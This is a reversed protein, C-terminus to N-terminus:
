QRIVEFGKTGLMKGGATRVRVLYNGATFNELNINKEFVGEVAASSRLLMKGTTSWVEFLLTESGDHAGLITLKDNAPVPFLEFSNNLLEDEKVVVSQDGNAFSYQGKRMVDLHLYGGGNFLNGAELTFDTYVEWPQSADERWAIIADAETSEYLDLDLDYEASAHYNMRGQIDNSASWIGDVNWFHTSSLEYIGEELNENDPASWIHEIRYLASDVVEEDYFKFDVYPLTPLLFDGPHIVFEYDMRNQNLRNHGNLVIMAPVFGSVLEVQTFEGDAVILYDQRQWNAGIMTLDIPVDSHFLPCERLKQQIFVDVAYEGSSETVAFSDVVFTAFGPLFIQDDFFNDLEMGTADELADRLQLPTIDEYAHDQQVTTMGERFLEDGMYGRLNHLVSAGKYYTHDGYIFEDPMPSMPQFGSDNIHANELVYLQNDKVLEIFEDQGNLWEVMLHSSYEAPGEKLWMDNHVHPTIMDGWWHHGLEHSYLGENAVLSEGTMFQPYAINTPIELAGDTTLAYGVRSFPHPGYWYELADIASGLNQFVNQMGSMNASKARLTVPIDGNAGNHTYEYNQYDAVAIASLHTPIPQNFEFSRIVTDGLIEEGTFDGQCWAKYNGSSMVHYEYTAREVFSDFCPYWVKGFNPPITSLGIGLNYIYQSQFYFGGWVPDQYPEGQYYVTVDYLEGIEPVSSFNVKLFEEDYTYSLLGSDDKVSDVQLHYLDFRIFQQDSMKPSYTVTTHAKIYGGSYDTVDIWINYNAVDFTDSRAISENMMSKQMTTLPQKKGGLNRFHHCDYKHPQALMNEACFLFVLLSIMHTWKM